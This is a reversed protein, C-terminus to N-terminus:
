LDAALQCHWFFRRYDVAAIQETGPWAGLSSNVPTHLIKLLIFSLKRFEYYIAITKKLRPLLPV